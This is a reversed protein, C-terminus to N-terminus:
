AKRVRLDYAVREAGFIEFIRKNQSEIRISDDLSRRKEMSAGRTRQSCLACLALTYFNAPPLVVSSWVGGYYGLKM